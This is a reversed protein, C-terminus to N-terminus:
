KIAGGVPLGSPVSEPIKKDFNPDTLAKIFAVIAAKDGDGLNLNRVKEDVQNDPVSLNGEGESADEYFDLVDELTRLKGNHMYPATNALNRLSGTRFLRKDDAGLDLKELRENDPVGLTHLEFDSFMPGTHCGNCGVEVFAQLGRLELESMANTSGNIYQDFSSNTAVLSREFAAIAKALRDESIGATGFAQAFRDQYVQIKQLRAVVSDTAAMEAFAHGRMEEFSRIPGLAQAELSKMRNDWFMFTNLPDPMADTKIGNFATNLITMSNRKVLTGGRRNESLGLAGVGLSLELNEAYDSNPHHCTACAVDRNGSLIPDYFLLRGLEIKEPSSVNDSPEPANSPMKGFEALEPVVLPDPACNAALICISVFFLFRFM